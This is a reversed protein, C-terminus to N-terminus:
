DGELLCTGNWATKLNSSRQWPAPEDQQAREVGVDNNQVTSRVDRCGGPGYLNPRDEPSAGSCREALGHNKAFPFAGVLRQAGHRKIQWLM